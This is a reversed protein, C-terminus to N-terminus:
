KADEMAYVSAEDADMWRLFEAEDKFGFERMMRRENETLERQNSTKREGRVPHNSPPHQPNMRQQPPNPQNNNGHNGQKSSMGVAAFYLMEITGPDPNTVGNTNLQNEIWVRYDDLDAHRSRVQAWARETRSEVMDERFPAIIQQMEERIIRRTVSEQSKLPDKWFDEATPASFPTQSEQNNTNQNQTNQTVFRNHYENLKKGQEKVTQETLALRTALQEETLGKLSPHSFPSQNSGSPTGESGQNQDQNQNEGEGEGSGNMGGDSSGDGPTKDRFPQGMMRRMWREM